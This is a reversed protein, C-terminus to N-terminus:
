YHGGIYSKGMLPVIVYKKKAYSDM